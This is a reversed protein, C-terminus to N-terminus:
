EPRKSCVIGTEPSVVQNLMECKWPFGFKGDRSESYLCNCWECKLCVVMQTYYMSM